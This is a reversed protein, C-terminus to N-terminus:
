SRPLLSTSTKPFAMPSIHAGPGREAWVKTDHELQTLLARSEVNEVQYKWHENESNRAQDDDFAKKRLFAL